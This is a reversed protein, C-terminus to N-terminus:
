GAHHDKLTKFVFIACSNCWHFETGPDPLGKGFLGSTNSGTISTQYEGLEKGCGDCVTKHM